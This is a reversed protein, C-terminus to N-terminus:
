KTSDIWKISILKLITLNSELQDFPQNTKSQNVIGMLITETKTIM